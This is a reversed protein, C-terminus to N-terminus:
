DEQPPKIRLLENIDQTLVQGAIHHGTPGWHGGDAARVTIGERESEEVAASVNPYPTFGAKKALDIWLKTQEPYEAGCSFTALKTKRPVSNAMMKLLSGTIQVSESMEKDM